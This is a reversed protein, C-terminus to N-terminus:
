KLTKCVGDHLVCHSGLSCIELPYFGYCCYNSFEHSGLTEWRAINYQCFEKFSKCQDFLTLAIVFDGVKDIPFLTQRHPM